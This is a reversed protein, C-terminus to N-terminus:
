TPQRSHGNAGSFPAWEGGGMHIEPSRGGDLNVTGVPPDDCWRQSRRYPLEELRAANGNSQSRIM